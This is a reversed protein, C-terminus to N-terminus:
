CRHTNIEHGKVQAIPMSFMTDVVRKITLAIHYGDQVSHFYIVTETKNSM